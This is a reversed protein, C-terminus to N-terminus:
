GNKFVKDSLANAGVPEGDKELTFIAKLSGHSDSSDDPTGDVAAATDLDGNKEEAQGLNIPCQSPLPRRMKSVKRLRNQLCLINIMAPRSM